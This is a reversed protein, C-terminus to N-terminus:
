VSDAFFAQGHTADAPNECVKVSPAYFLSPAYDTPGNTFVQLNVRDSGFVKVVIAPRIEGANTGKPLVYMVTEGLKPIRM